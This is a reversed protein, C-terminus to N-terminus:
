HITIFNSIASYLCIAFVTVQKAQLSLELQYKYAESQKKLDDWSEQLETERRRIDGAQPHGAGVLDDGQQCIRNKHAEHIDIEACLTQHKKKLKQM